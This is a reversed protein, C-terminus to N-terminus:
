YLNKFFNITDAASRQFHLQIQSDKLMSNDSKWGSMVFQPGIAGTRENQAFTRPYFRGAVITARTLTLLLKVVGM